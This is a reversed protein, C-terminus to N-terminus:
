RQMRLELRGLLRLKLGHLVLVWRATAPRAFRNILFQLKSLRTQVLLDNSLFVPVLLRKPGNWLPKGWWPGLEHLRIVKRRKVLVHWRVVRSLSLFFQQRAADFWGLTGKLPAHRHLSWYLARRQSLCGFSLIDLRKTVGLGVQGEVLWLVLNDFVINYQPM